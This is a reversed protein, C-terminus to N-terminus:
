PDDAGLIQVRRRPDSKNGIVKSQVEGAVERILGILWAIVPDNMRLASTVITQTFQPHPLPPEKLILGFSKAFSKAFLRSTTAIMDTAAVTALSAMFHPTSLGIRRVTGSKALRADVDSGDDGFISVVVNEWTAYEATTWKKASAPHKERMVLAYRDECIPTSVAGPPLPTHAGAFALDVGGDILRAFVNRTYNQVSMQVNPAERRIREMVKPIFLVTHMDCAVIQMERRVKSVDFPAPRYIGRAASLVAAVRPALEEARSTLALGSPSRVLLDDKLVERLRALVHSMASQSLGVDEGARTVHRRRLLAELAPLLNLDVSALNLDRM